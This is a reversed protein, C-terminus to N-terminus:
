WALWTNGAGNLCAIIVGKGSASSFAADAAAGNIVGGSPPYVKLIKNSVGNGIFLLRGTVQDAATLIVGKTDDAATTPYIPATGSPLATANGTANGAAATSGGVAHTEAKGFVLAESSNTTVFSLYSNSGEKINLADALNDVLSIINNATTGGFKLTKLVNILEGSDTTTFTLYATSGEKISLADALNDVISVINNGTTGGFKMTKLVNILEAANTTTFTLYATGAESVTLADALNDVLNIINNGTTGGFQLTKKVNILEASDTTVFTLYATSGEKFSLSDALNDVLSVINNGTTGGFKLTKKVNILEGSDTTTFTLYATGAESVTLADALNDVLGIVNNGTTGGFKMTKKINILEAANTTTFTIYKNSGEQISLADALNDPMVILNAGTVDDFTLTGGDFNADGRVGMYVPRIEVQTASIVRDVWGVLVSNTSTYDVENSYKAYVAKGEDGAAASAILASFRWPRTVQVKVDGSSDGTEVDIRVSNAVLGDFRLNASDDCKTAYGSSNLAIMENPYYSAAGTVLGREVKDDGWQSVTAKVAATPNAM